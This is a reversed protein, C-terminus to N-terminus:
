KTDFAKKYNPFKDLRWPEVLEDRQGMYWDWAIQKFLDKQAQRQEKDVITADIVTLLKGVLTNIREYRIVPDLEDNSRVDGNPEADFDYRVVGMIDHTDPVEIGLDIIKETNGIRPKGQNGYGECIILKVKSM